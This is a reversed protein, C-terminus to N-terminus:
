SRYRYLVNNKDISRVAICDAPLSLYIFTGSRVPQPMKTTSRFDFSANEVDTVKEFKQFQSWGRGGERGTDVTDYMGGSWRVGAASWTGPVTCSWAVM